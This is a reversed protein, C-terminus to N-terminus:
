DTVEHVGRVRGSAGDIQIMLFTNLWNGPRRAGPAYWLAYHGAVDPANVQNQPAGLLERVEADTRGILHGGKVLDNLMSLRTTPAPPTHWHARNFPIDPVEPGRARLGLAGFVAGLLLVTAVLTLRSHRVLGASTSNM